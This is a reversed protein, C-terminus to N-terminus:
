AALLSHQRIVGAANAIMVVMGANLESPHRWFFSEGKPLTRIETDGSDKSLVIEVQATFSQREMM